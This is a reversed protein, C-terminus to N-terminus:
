VCLMKTVECPGCVFQSILLGPLQRCLQVQFERREAVSMDQEAPCHQGGRQWVSALLCAALPRTGRFADPQPCDSSLSENVLSASVERDGM